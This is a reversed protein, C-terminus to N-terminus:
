YDCIVVIECAVIINRLDDSSVNSSLFTELGKRSVAPRLKTPRLSLTEELGSEAKRQTITVQLM